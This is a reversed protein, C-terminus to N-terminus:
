TKLGSGNIMVDFFKITYILFHFGFFDFELRIFFSFKLTRKKRRIM